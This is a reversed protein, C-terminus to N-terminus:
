TAGVTHDTDIILPWLRPALWKNFADAVAQSSNGIFPNGPAYAPTHIGDATRVQVGDLFERYNGGPSLVDGLDVVSVRGPFASAVQALLGDYIHRRVPSDGLTGNNMAPMTTFDLHAGHATTVAIALDMQDLLYRQFAPQTINSWQGDHLIDQCEWDGAIFLVIDGPATGLVAQAALSPWQQSMPTGDNCASFM